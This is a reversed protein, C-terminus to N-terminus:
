LQYDTISDFKGRLLEFKSYLFHLSLLLLISVWFFFPVGKRKGNKARGSGEGGERSESNYNEIPGLHSPMSLLLGYARLGLM